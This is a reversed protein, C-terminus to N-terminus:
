DLTENVNLKSIYHIAETTFYETGIGKIVISKLIKFMHHEFHRKGTVCNCFMSYRLKLFRTSKEKQSSEKRIM